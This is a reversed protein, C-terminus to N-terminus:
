GHDALKAFRRKFDMEQKTFTSICRTAEAKGRAHLAESTEQPEEEEAQGQDKEVTQQPWTAGSTDGEVQWQYEKKIEAPLAKAQPDDHDLMAHARTLMRGAKIALKIVEPDEKEQVQKGRLWEGKTMFGTSVQVM